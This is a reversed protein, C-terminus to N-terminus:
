YPCRNPTTQGPYLTWSPFARSTYSYPYTQSPCESFPLNAHLGCKCFVTTYYYINPGTLVAHTEVVTHPQPGTPPGLYQFGWPGGPFIGQRGSWSSDRVAEVNDNSTITTWSTGDYYQWPTNTYTWSGTTPGGRFLAQWSGPKAPRKSLGVGEGKEEAFALLNCAGGRNLGWFDAQQAGVRYGNMLPVWSQGGMANSGNVMVTMRNSTGAQASGEFECFSSSPTGVENFYFMRQASTPPASCSDIGYEGTVGQQIMNGSGLGNGTSNDNAQVSTVFFDGSSIAFRLPNVITARVGYFNRPFVVSPVVSLAAVNTPTLTISSQTPRCDAAFSSATTLALAVTLFTALLLALRKM